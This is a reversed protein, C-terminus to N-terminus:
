GVKRIVYGSRKYYKKTLEDPWAYDRIGKKRSLTIKMNEKDILSIIITQIDSRGWFRFDIEITDDKNANNRIAEITHIEMGYPNYFILLSKGLMVDIAISGSNLDIEDNGWSFEEKSYTDEVHGYHGSVWIGSIWRKVNENDSFFSYEKLNSIANPLFFILAICILVIFIVIIFKKIM